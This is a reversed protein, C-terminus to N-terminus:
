PRPPPGPDPVVCARFLHNKLEGEAQRSVRRETGGKHYVRDVNAPVHDADVGLHEFVRRM